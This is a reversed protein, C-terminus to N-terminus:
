DKYDKLANVVGRAPNYASGGDALVLVTKTRFENNGELTPAERLENLSTEIGAWINDSGGPQQRNIVTMQLERNADTM